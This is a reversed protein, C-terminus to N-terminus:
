FNELIIPLPYLISLHRFLPSLLVVVSQSTGDALNMYTWILGVLQCRGGVHCRDYEITRCVWGLETIFRHAFVIAAATKRSNFDESVGSLVVVVILYM